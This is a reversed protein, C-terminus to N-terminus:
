GGDQGEMGALAAGPKIVESAHDRERSEIEVPARIQRDAPKVASRAPKRFGRKILLVLSLGLLLAFVADPVGSTARIVADAGSRLYEGLRTQEQSAELGGLFTSVIVFAGVALFLLGALLNTSHVQWRLPGAYLSLSRGRVILNNSFDFREWLLGMVVLPAVM